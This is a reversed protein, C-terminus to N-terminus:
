HGKRRFIGSVLIRLMFRFLTLLCFFVFMDEWLARGWKLLIWITSYKEVKGLLWGEEQVFRMHHRHTNSYPIFLIGLPPPVVNKFTHPDLFLFFLSLSIYSYLPIKQHHLSSHQLLCCSLLISFIWVRLVSLPPCFFFFPLGDLSSFSSLASLPQPSPVPALNCSPFSAWPLFAKALLLGAESPVAADRVPTTMVKPILTHTVAFGWGGEWERRM